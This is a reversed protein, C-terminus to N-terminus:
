HIEVIDGDRLRFGSGVRVSAAHESPRYVVAYKLESALEGHISKALDLVTDGERLLVPDGPVEKERPEKTWVRMKGTVKLIDYLLARPDDGIESMTKALAPISGDLLFVEGLRARLEDPVLVWSKIVLANANLSADLSYETSFKSIEVTVGGVEAHRIHDLAGKHDVFDSQGKVELSKTPSLAMKTESGPSVFYVDFRRLANAVVGCEHLEEESSVAFLAVDAQRVLDLYDSSSVLSLSMPLLITNVGGLKISHPRVADSYFSVSSSGTIRSLVTHRLEINGYPLLMLLEDKGKSISLARQRRAQRRRVRDREMGEELRTIQRKVNVRLKETGKHSPIMSLFLRLNKLKEPKTKSAVVRKYQAVADPPLNTVV